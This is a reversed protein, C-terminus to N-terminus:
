IHDLGRDLKYHVWRSADSRSLLAATRVILDEFDLVGRAAKQRTYEAIAADALVLMATTSELCEAASIRDRLAELRAKEAELWADDIGLARKSANTILRAAARLDGGSTLWFDLYGDVREDPDASLV